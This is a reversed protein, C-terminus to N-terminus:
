LVKKIDSFSELFFDPQTRELLNNSQAGTKVAISIVEANKAMLVDAVTDGVYYTEEAKEGLREMIM